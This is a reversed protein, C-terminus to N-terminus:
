VRTLRAFGLSLSNDGYNSRCILASQTSFSWLGNEGTIDSGVPAALAVIIQLALGLRFITAGFGHGLLWRSNEVSDALLPLEIERSANRSGAAGM